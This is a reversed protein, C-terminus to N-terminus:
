KQLSISVALQTPTYIEEERPDQQRRLPLKMGAIGRPITCQKTSVNQQGLNVAGRRSAYWYSPPFSRREWLSLMPSFLVPCVQCTPDRLVSTEPNWLPTKDSLCRGDSLERTDVPFGRTALLTVCSRAWLGDAAICGRPFDFGSSPGRVAQDPANKIM